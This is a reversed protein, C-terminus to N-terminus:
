NAVPVWNGNILQVREGNPGYAFKPPPGAPARPRISADAAEGSITAETTVADIAAKLAEQSDATDFMKRNEKRKETDTGGRAALVDYANSLTTMYAKLQKLNPDSSATLAKQKLENWPVFEGRPIKTSAELVKPAIRSIEEEAYRIKGAIGGEVQREKNQAALVQKQDALDAAAEKVKPDDEQGLSLQALRNQVASINAAGQKGRGFNSLVESSKEGNHLRQAALDIAEPSMTPQEIQRIKEAEMELKKQKLYIDAQDHAQRIDTNKLKDSIIQAQQFAKVAAQDVKSQDGTVQRAFQLAKLDADVRGKYVQRMENYIKQQQNWKDLWQQYATDYAAKQDRYKQESGQILGSVMGNTAGLMATDHIGTAKGGLAALGILLPAVSTIGSQPQPAGPAGGSPPPTFDPPKESKALDELAARDQGLQDEYYQSISSPDPGSPASSPSDALGKYSDLM